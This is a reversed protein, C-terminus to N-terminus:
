VIQRLRMEKPETRLWERVLNIETLLISRSDRFTQAPIKCVEIENEICHISCQVSRICYREFDQAPYLNRAYNWLGWQDFTRGIEDYTPPKEGSKGHRYIYHRVSKHHRMYFGNREQLTSHTCWRDKLFHEIRKEVYKQEFRVRLAQPFYCFSWLISEDAQDRPLISKRNTLGNSHFQNSDSCFDTRYDFPNHSQSKSGSTGFIYSDKHYDSPNDSQKFSCSTGFVYSDKKKTPTSSIPLNSGYARSSDRFGPSPDKYGSYPADKFNSPDRNSSGSFKNYGTSDPYKHIKSDESSVVTKQQSSGPNYMKMLMEHQEQMQKMVKKMDDISLNLDGPDTERKKSKKKQDDESKSSRKSGASAVSRESSQPTKYPFKFQYKKKEVKNEKSFSQKPQQKRTTKSSSPNEDFDEDYNLVIDDEDEQKGEPSGNYSESKSSDDGSSNKGSSKQGLRM